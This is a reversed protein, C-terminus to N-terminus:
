NVSLQSVTDSIVRYSTMSYSARKWPRMLRQRLRAMQRDTCPPVHFHFLRYLTACSLSVHTCPPVHFHFNWQSWLHIPTRCKRQFMSQHAKLAEGLLECMTLPFSWMNVMGILPNPQQQKPRHGNQDTATKTQPLKPRLEKHSHLAVLSSYQCILM